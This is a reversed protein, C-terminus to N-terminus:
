SSQVLLQVDMFSMQQGLNNASLREDWINKKSCSFERSPIKQECRSWRSAWHCITKSFEVNLAEIVLSRVFLCQSNNMKRAAFWIWKQEDSQWRLFVFLTVTSTSSVQLLINRTPSHNEPTVIFCLFNQKWGRWLDVWGQWGLMIGCSCRMQFFIGGWRFKENEM